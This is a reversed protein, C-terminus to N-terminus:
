KRGGDGELDLEVFERDRGGAGGGRGTRKM